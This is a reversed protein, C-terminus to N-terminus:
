TFHATATKDGDIFISTTSLGTNTISNTNNVGIGSSSWNLFSHGSIPTGVITPLTGAVKSGGGTAFGTGISGTTLTYSPAAPNRPPISASSFDIEIASEGFTTRSAYISIVSGSPAFNTRDTGFSPIGDIDIDYDLVLSSLSNFWQKAYGGMTDDVVCGHPVVCGVPVGTITVLTDFGPGGGSWNKLTSYLSINNFVGPGTKTFTTRVHPNDNAVNCSLFVNYGDSSDTVASAPINFTFPGTGTQTALTIVTNKKLVATMSNAFTTTLDDAITIQVTTSGATGFMEFGATYNNPHLAGTGGPNAGTGFIWGVIVASTYSFLPTATTPPPTTPPPTSGPSTPGPTTPPPTTSPPATPGPTHVPLSATLTSILTGFSIRLTEDGRQIVYHSDPPVFSLIDLAGTRIIRNDAM